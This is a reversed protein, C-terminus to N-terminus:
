CNVKKVIGTTLFQWRFLGAGSSELTIVFQDSSSDV